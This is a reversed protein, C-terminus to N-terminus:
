IGPSTGKKQGREQGRESGKGAVRGMIDLVRGGPKLSISTYKHALAIPTVANKYLDTEVETILRLARNLTEYRENEVKNNAFDDASNKSAFPYPLAFVFMKGSPTKFAFDHGYYTEAGFGNSSRETGLYQYRFEDTISFLTNNPVYQQLYQMYEVVYGTKQLGIIVPASYSYAEQTQRLNHLFRIICSHLWAANGFVALPSDVFVAVQGLWAPSRNRLFRLYHIPLLHEIYGMLRSAPEQSPAFDTVAEWLRLCDSIYLRGNCDPCRHEEYDADLYINTRGCEHPCRHIKVSNPAADRDPRMTALEILTGMLSTDPDDDQFRTAESCLFREVQGRFTDRVNSDEPLKFNSLPLVLSLTDRNQQLAAVKFPDVFHTQEDELGQFDTMEILITSFKLYCVKISPLRDDISSAYFSGDSAILHNVINTGAYDPAPQFYESLAEIEEASPERIPTCQELFSQVEPNRVVESHATKSGFQGEYPM